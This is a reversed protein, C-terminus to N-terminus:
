ALVVEKEQLEEPERSGAIARILQMWRDLHQGFPAQKAAALEVAMEGAFGTCILERGAALSNWIKSPFIAQTIKPNAAVLHVEHRLLDDRLEEADAKLPSPRLWAPLQAAGRGDARMTIRYGADRLKECTAVLLEIDHGFGLNGSYLATRPEPKLGREFSLTPWNRIVVCNDTPGGLNAGIKVVRDWRELQRDWCRRFVRRLSAPYEHLGRILEPYYDQLWYIATAGRRRIARALTVTNPPASTVIVLDERRVFRTIYDCFARTVSAYEAFTQRLNGRRGEYHDLHVIREVPKERRQLRYGGKGGVLRVDAGGEELRAALQEAYLGTPAADPWIYQTLLHVSAM